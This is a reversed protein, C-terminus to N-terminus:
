MQRESRRYRKRRNRALERELEDLDPAPGYLRWGNKILPILAVLAVWAPWFSGQAGAFLWIVTCILFPVLATGTQQIVEGRLRRRREALEARAQARTAPLMPLDRRLAQLEGQTRARYVADLRESLEDETLRGEAFHTRIEAATRERDQDSARLDSV